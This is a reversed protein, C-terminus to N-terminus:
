QISATLDAQSQEFGKSATIVVDDVSVGEASLPIRIDRYSSLDLQFNNSEYGIYTVVLELPFSSRDLQFSFNGEEDTLQGVLAGKTVLTAGILPSNTESDVVQGTVTVLDEQAFLPFQSLSFMLVLGWAFLRTTLQQMM